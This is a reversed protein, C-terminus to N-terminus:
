FGEEETFTPRHVEHVTVWTHWYVWYPGTRESYDWEETRTRFVWGTRIAEGNKGDVYQGQYTKGYKKQLIRRLADIDDAEHWEPKSEPGYWGQGTWDGRTNGTRTVTCLYQM